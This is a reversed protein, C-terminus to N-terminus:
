SSSICKKGSFVFRVPFCLRFPHFVFRIPHFALFWCFEGWFSCKQLKTQSQNLWNAEKMGWGAAVFEGLKWRKNNLPFKNLQIQNWKWGFSWILKMKLKKEWEDFIIRSWLLQREGWIWENAVYEGATM